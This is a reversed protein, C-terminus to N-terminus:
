MVFMLSDQFVTLCLCELKNQRLLLYLEIGLDLFKAKSHLGNPPIESVDRDVNLVNSHGSFSVLM